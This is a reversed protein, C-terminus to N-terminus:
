INKVHPDRIALADMRMWDNGTQEGQASGLFEAIRPSKQLAVLLRTLPIPIRDVFHVTKGLFAQPNQSLARINLGLSPSGFWNFMVLLNFNCDTYWKAHLFM